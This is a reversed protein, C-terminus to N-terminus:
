DANKLEEWRDAAARKADQGLQMGSEGILKLQELTMQMVVDPTIQAAIEEQSIPPRTAGPLQGQEASQRIVSAFELMEERNNVPDGMLDAAKIKHEIADAIVQANPVGGNDLTASASELMRVKDNTIAGGKQLAAIEPGTLVFTTLLKKLRGRKDRLVEQDEGTFFPLNFASGAEGLTRMLDGAPNGSQFVTGELDALLGVAEHAASYFKDIDGTVGGREVSTRYNPNPQFTISPGSPGISPIPIYASDPGFGSGGGLGSLMSEIDPMGEQIMKTQEFDLLDGANLMGSQLMAEQAAPSRPDGGALMDLLGMPGTGGIENVQNPDGFQMQNPVLRGEQTVDNGTTMLSQMRQRAFEQGEQTKLQMELLQGQLKAMKDRVDRDKKAERTRMFSDAFAGAFHGITM